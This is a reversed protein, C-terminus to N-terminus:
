LVANRHTLHLYILFLHIVYGNLGVCKFFLHFVQTRYRLYLFLMYLKFCFKELKKKGNKSEFIM